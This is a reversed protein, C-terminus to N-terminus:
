RNFRTNPDYQEHQTGKTINNVYTEFDNAMHNFAKKIECILKHPQSDGDIAELLKAVKRNRIKSINETHSM